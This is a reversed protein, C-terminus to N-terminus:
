PTQYWASLAILKQARSHHRIGNFLEATPMERKLEDLTIHGIISVHPDSARIPQRTRNELTAGDWANRLVM